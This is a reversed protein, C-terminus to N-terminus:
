EYQRALGQGKRTCGTAGNSTQKVNLEIKIAHECELCEMIQLVTRTSLSFTKLGIANIGHFTELKAISNLRHILYLNATFLESSVYGVLNLCIHM